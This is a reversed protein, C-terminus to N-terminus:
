RARQIWIYKWGGAPLVMELSGDKLPITDRTLGDLVPGPADVGLMKWDPRLTARQKGRGLNSVIVLAGNCPHRYMSAIWDKPLDQVPRELSHYPTFRSASRGFDDALRWISRTLLAENEGSDVPVEDQRFRALIDHPLSAALSKRFNGLKYSLLDCPVGWNAGTFETRFRDLPLADTLIDASPLQEGNWYSTAFAL